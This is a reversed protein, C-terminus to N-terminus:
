NRQFVLTKPHPMFLCISGMGGSVGFVSQLSSYGDYNEHKASILAIGPLGHEMEVYKAYNYCNRGYFMSIYLQERALMAEKSAHCSVIKFEFSEPGFRQIDGNININSHLKKNIERNHTTWRTKLDATSGFYVM